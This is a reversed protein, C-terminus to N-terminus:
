SSPGSAVDCGNEDPKRSEYPRRRFGSSKGANPQLLGLLLKVATTKGAGNPGLLAVVEGSRVQFNVGRLARIDGYNMNVGDLSAVIADLNRLEAPQPQELTAIM